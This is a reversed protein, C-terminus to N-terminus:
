CTGRGNGEVMKPTFIELESVLIEAFEQLVESDSIHSTFLTNSEKYGKLEHRIDLPYTNTLIHSPVTGDYSSFFNLMNISYKSDVVVEITDSAYPSETIYITTGELVVAIRITEHYGTHLNMGIRETRIKHVMGSEEILSPIINIM